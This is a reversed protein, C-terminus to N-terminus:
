FLIYNIVLVWLIGAEVYLAIQVYCLALGFIRRLNTVEWLFLPNFLLSIGVPKPRKILCHMGVRNLM